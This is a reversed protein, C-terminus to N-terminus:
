SSRVCADRRWRRGHRRARDPGERPVPEGPRRARDREHRRHRDADARRHAVRRRAPRGHHDAAPDRRDGRVAGLDAAAAASAAVQLDRGDRHLRDPDRRAARTRAAHVRGAAAHRRRRPRCRAPRCSSTPSRRRSRRRHAATLNDTSPTVTVTATRQGGQPPSRPRARADGRGDRGADLPIPGAASPITLEQLEEITTPPDALGRPLGHAVIDDIEVTGITRPQMTNSSSRASRSRRCGSRGRGRGTSRRRRHVPPIGLPQEHGPRDGDADSVADVVADTAEQLTAQDPATVDIEIDTSGFGGGGSPSRSTASTRSTPSPTRCTRASPSRTPTPIPPSRTPSAAAAAAHVRRAPGVRELRDLDARDRHRRRDLLADEVKQPRPTRRRSARGRRGVDQTVTFTNQGSDGLFNTKM